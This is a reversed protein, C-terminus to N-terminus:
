IYKFHLTITHMKTVQNHIYVTLRYVYNFRDLGIPTTPDRDLMTTAQFKAVFYEQPPSIGWYKIKEGDLPGAMLHLIFEM